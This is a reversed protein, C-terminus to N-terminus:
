SITVPCSISTAGIIRSPGSRHNRRRWRKLREVQLDLAQELATELVALPRRRFRNRALVFERATEANRLAGPALRDLRERSVVEDDASLALAREDRRMGLFLRGTKTKKTDTAIVAHVLIRVAPQELHAAGFGRGLNRAPEVELRAVAHDQQAADQLEAASRDDEVVDRKWRRQEAAEGLRPELRVAPRHISKELGLEAHPYQAGLFFQAGDGGVSRARTKEAHPRSRRKEGDVASRECVAIPRDFPPAAKAHRRPMVIEIAQTLSAEPDLYLPNSSRVM